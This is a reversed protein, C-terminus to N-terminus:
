SGLVGQKKKKKKKFRELKPSKRKSPIKKHYPNQLIKIWLISLLDKRKDLM